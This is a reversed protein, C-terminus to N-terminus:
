RFLPSILDRVITDPTALTELLERFRDPLQEGTIPWQEPDWVVSVEMGQRHHRCALAFSGNPTQPNTMMPPSIRDLLLGDGPERAILYSCGLMRHAVGGREQADRAVIDSLVPYDYHRHRMANLVLDRLRNIFDGIREGPDLQVRLHTLISLNGVVLQDAAVARNSFPVNIVLDHGGGLRCLLLAQTALLAVFPSCALKRCQAILRNTAEREFAFQTTIGDVWRLTTEGPSLPAGRLLDVWFELSADATAAQAQERDLYARFRGASPVLTPESEDLLAQYHQTLEREIQDFALDDAALHDVTLAFFYRSDVKTIGAVIPPDKTLDFAEASQSLLANLAFTERQEPTGGRVNIGEIAPIWDVFRQRWVGDTCVLQLRLAENSKVTLRFAALLAVTDLSDPLRYIRQVPRALQESHLAVHLV